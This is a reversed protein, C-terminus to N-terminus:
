RILTVGGKLVEKRGDKLEVEVLYVYTGMPASEGRFKGDWGETTSLNAGDYVLEGWRDFVKLTRVQVVEPGPYVSFVGNPGDASPAFANPIYVRLRKQVTVSILDTITCGEKSKLTLQYVSSATPKVSIKLQNANPIDTKPTWIISAPTFNIAIPALNLTDGLDILKDPGLDLVLDASPVLTYAQDQRCGNGDTIAFSGAGSSAVQFDIPFSSITRGPKEGFAISYPRAGGTISKITLTRPKGGCLVTDSALAIIISDPATLKVASEAKCGISDTVTVQYDGAGLNRVLRDTAGNSWAIKLSGKGGNTAIEMAGDKQGACSVEYRGFRVSPRANVTLDSVGITVLSNVQATCFNASNSSIQILRFTTNFIPAVDITQGDVVNNQTLTDRGRLYKINFPAGKTLSLRLKAVKGKCLTTDGRWSASPKQAYSIAVEVTTDCQTPTKSPFTQVGTLRNEDYIIGRLVLKEGTCLTKTIKQQLPQAKFTQLAISPASACRNGDILSTFRIFNNGPTLEPNCLNFSDLLVSSSTSRTFVANSGNTATYTYVFPPTGTFRVKLLSCDGCPNSKIMAAVNPAASIQLVVPVPNSQCIGNSVVAYVTDTSANYQSPTTIRNTLTRDRFYFIQVRPNANIQANLKTLNFDASNSGPDACMVTAKPIRATPKPLARVTAGGEFQSYIPCNRIDTVSVLNYTVSDLTSVHITDGNNASPLRLTDKGNSYEVLFPGGTSPLRFVLVDDVKGCGQCTTCTIRIGSSVLDLKLPIASINACSGAPKWNAPNAIRLIWELQSAPTFSGAYAIYDTSGATPEMHYCSSVDPNLGSEQPSDARNWITKTNFGFLIRGGTYTADHRFSGVNATGQNWVGGQMFYFQDGGSNLNVSNISNEAFSWANDPATAKYSTNGIPPFEFTIVTGAPITPGTRTVRVFGESNGWKGLNLREWGNDTIDLTTGTTIDRFCVFSVRDISNGSCAADNANVSIIALDGAILKTQAALFDPTFLVLSLFALVLGIPRLSIVTKTLQKMKYTYNLLPVIYIEM